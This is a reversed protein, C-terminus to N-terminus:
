GARECRLFLSGDAEFATGVSFGQPPSIPGAALHQHDPGVTLPTITLCLEDIIGHTVLQHLLHPGGECLVRLLGRTSLESVVLEMEVKEEGCIIVEAVEKLAGADAAGQASTLVLTPVTADTFLRSTPDLACGRTVVAIPPVPSFGSAIRREITEPSPKAPGYGEARVTQAGVLLVDALERLIHFVKRDIESSVGRSVGGAEVSGDLSTAFNARIFCHGSPIADRNPVRYTALLDPSGDAGVPRDGTVWKM